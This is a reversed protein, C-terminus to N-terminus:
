ELECRQEIQQQDHHERLVDLISISHLRNLCFAGLSLTGDFGLAGFHQFVDLPLLLFKRFQSSGIVLTKLVDQGLMLLCSGQQSLGQIEGRGRHRFDQFEPCGALGIISLSKFRGGLGQRLSKCLVVRIEKAKGKTDVLHLLVDTDPFNMHLIVSLDQHRITTTRRGHVKHGDIL